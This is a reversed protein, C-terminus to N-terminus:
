INAGNQLELLHAALKAGVNAVSQVDADFFCLANRGAAKAQYMALDAQMLLDESSSHGDFLTVGLSATNYLVRGSLDYPHSLADRIKEGIAQAQETAEAQIKSLNMLMVVFEDGGQRGVTDILRVCHTLRQAVQQLLLDGKGHGLTDNIVKFNDLDLFLLAGYCKSRKSLVLARQLRDGLLRRNPLGTLPDYFALQRIEEEATKRAIFQGIQSGISQMLVLLAADYPRVDHVYFEMVGYLTSGVSVPFAFAGRLGSKLAIDAGLFGPDLGIDVVQVSQGGSLVRAILGTTDSALSQQCSLELFQTMVATGTSWSACCCLVQDQKDRCWFTGGAAGLTACIIQIIKPAAARLTKADALLLTVEYEMTQRQELQKQLSIDRRVGVIGGSRTRRESVELWRGQGLQLVHSEAQPNRHRRIRERIWDEVDGQFAPEIVEGNALSSRVLDEFHLGAIDEYRDFNTFYQAYLSNCMVLRDDADYLGFAESLSDIADILNTQAIAAQAAALTLKDQQRHQETVDRITGRLLVMCGQGDIVPEGMTHMWRIEGDSRVIRFQDDFARGEQLAPKVLELYHQRDDPYVCELFRAGALAPLTPDLGFLHYTELSWTASGQGPDFTWGGLGAIRQVQALDAESAQVRQLLSQLEENRKHLKKRLTSTFGGMVAFWPLTIASACWLLLEHMLDLAQPRLYWLLAIGGGYAALIAAACLLLPQITLQLVGFLFIMMLVLLFVARGENALYMTYLIVLSSVSMQLITLSPDRFRLNLGSRFMFYFGADALLVLASSKLLGARPLAGELYSAFMLGIVLFSTAVAMLFRRM